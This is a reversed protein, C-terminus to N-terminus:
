YSDPPRSATLEGLQPPPSTSMSNFGRIRARPALGQADIPQELVDTAVNGAQDTADIRLFMQRPVNPDAPWVYQGDNRLGGAITTWPGNVNDSFSLTIPRLGLNQDECQYRIVLSGTQDAEGYRAGSFRVVPSQMDVIVIMDPLDGPQPRPSALGNAGVVVIKFGFVGEERTEIDFPSSRDEDKGWLSWTNGGDTSGYLEVAEVGRNDVAELEYLLSFRLSKSYRSPIRAVLDNRNTSSRMSQYRGPDRDVQPAPTPVHEIQRQVASGESIPRMAEAATRPRQAPPTHTQTLMQQQPSNLGYPNTVQHPTVPTPPAQNNAPSPDAQAGFFPMRQGVPMAEVTSRPSAQQPTQQLSPPTAVPAAALDAPDAPALAPFQGRLSNTEREGPKRDLQIEPIPSGEIREATAHNWRIALANALPMPESGRASAEAQLNGASEALRPRRVFQTVVSQNGPTDTGVCQVSIQKWDHHPTFQVIGDAPMQHIPVSQWQNVTDTIYRLEISKLPTVDNVILRVYVKGASDAEADFTVSPGTTDVYVKLQSEIAGAPHPRGNSDITRTAFWYEGDEKAVFRFQKDRVDPRKRACLRWADSPGRSVFLDVERPQNGESDVSFPITFSRAGLIFCDSSPPAGQEQTKRVSTASNTVEVASATDILMSALVVALAAALTSYKAINM